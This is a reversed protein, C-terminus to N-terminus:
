ELQQAYEVNIIFSKNIIREDPKIFVVFIISLININLLKIKPYFAYFCIHILSLLVRSDLSVGARHKVHTQQFSV